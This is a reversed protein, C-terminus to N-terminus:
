AREVSSGDTGFWSHVLGEVHAQLPGITIRNIMESVFAYTLLDRASEPNMGRSRLYFLADPDLQGITSGHTCKVDDAHIELQPKTNIVANGSLLLNKNVQKADTKQAAKHVYIKGNFVGRSGEALVGKYLERSSCHPKVHDIRTHNDVHQEGRLLYLGDLTCESGEGDLVANVDNRVLAGGLALSSSLFTNGGQLHSQVTAVHFAKESERQVRYHAVRASEGSFIETVANTCYVDNEWGIYSEVIVAHSNEEAVILNRPYALTPKGRPLSVFLLHIPAEVVAGKRVFVVAGDEMFATNLAVFAHEPHSTQRTLFPEVKGPSDRLAVALSGVTVGEPLSRLSSLDESYRGNVFVLRPSELGKPTLPTLIKGTLGAHNDDAPVFNIKLLPAVSTYKWEEQRSTPFGLTAFRSIAARRIDGIWSPEGAARTKEFVDFAALYREVDASIHPM